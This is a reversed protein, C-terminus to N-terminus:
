NQTDGRWEHAWVFPIQANKACQKDELRDGVMFSGEPIRTTGLMDATAYQLMGIEPKRFSYYPYYLHRAAGTPKRRDFSSSSIGAKGSGVLHVTEGDDPCFYVAFLQPLLKITKLQEDICSELTKFGHRVGAQNTIGVILWEEENSYKAIADEVGDILKKIKQITLLLQV